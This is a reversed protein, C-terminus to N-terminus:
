NCTGTQEKGYVRRKPVIARFTSGKGPESIVVIRGGLLELLQYCISLGLGTGEYKRTLGSDIQHFPKFLKDLETVPIGIGTDQVSVIYCDDNTATSVTVSGHETFKVANSLLNLIVQELRRQDCEIMAEESLNEHVLSLGKKEAQPRVLSVVRDISKDLEFDTYVLDLQGAEIKSIDLVDNILSLLHRSSNQVMQLQKRQEDNVRGPLEQLLIGTFGIISNLPTRLEHSMTALFASKLMDAQKARQMATALEKTRELIRDEMEFNALRLERTRIRVQRKLVIGAITTILLGVGVILLMLKLWLPLHLGTNEKAWERIANYYASEPNQKMQKLHVDIKSLLDANKGKATVFFLTSPEFVIATDELGYNNAHMRGFFNNTVAVDAKNESVLSFAEDFSNVAIINVQLGFGMVMTDIAQQQISGELVVIRKGDLDIISQVGLGKRSYVQSWSSLVPISHFSYLKDRDTTFAVDTVLDVEGAQLKQLNDDWLGLQYRIDWEEEESISNLIKVFIGDPDGKDNIYTKPPNQAIGVRVLRTSLLQFPSIFLLCALAVKLSTATQRYCENQM